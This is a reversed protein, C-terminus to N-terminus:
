RDDEVQTIQWNISTMQWSDTATNSSIQVSIVRSDNQDFQVWPNSTNITFTQTPKYNATIGVSNSGGVAINVNGTGVVEPLIRHVQVKKSYADTLKINDREFLSSIPSGLFNTGVDKQVLQTSATAGASYVVTRTALNAVNSSNWVPSEIAATANAIQRPPNWIALDYRYSIMQNCYGTSNLDPYYIEFQNKKANNIAFVQNAYSSNLNNYFYNKIKQNGIPTFNGGDFSWIDRADVGYVVTDTAAWCNENLLGRGQAILKIGFVPASTSQYSIPSFVVTDWYSCVYFNGGLPFGDVVPGRVPVPLQNAVNNITPAWTTPGSSLGFSQSWRVTNGLHVTTNSTTQATLNGAILLSGVNPASYVRLFGATISNYAPVINGSNNYTVDYNWVYNDPSNDYVRIQTYNQAYYFPPNITDNIFLITGNWSATIILNNSYGPLPGNTNGNLNPTINSIGSASVDYWYGEATAVIFHFNFNDRFGGTVFIQHGPVASLIGIDGAVTKIGRTDTEVNYGTSYEMPNLAVTPVDPTFSMNTFPTNLPSVAM